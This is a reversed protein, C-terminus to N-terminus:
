LNYCPVRSSAFCFLLTGSSNSYWEGTFGWASATSGEQWLPEGYPAYGRAYAVVGGGDAWQRASGLADPLVYAWASEQVEAIRGLGYLDRAGDGTTLMQALPLALDWAFTTVTGTMQQAVRLGDGNYTYVLTATLSQAGVLRGATNYTYTFTGDNTLNGRADWTYAVDGVSTLRNAADYTYTTVTTSGLTVTYTTRNGVGDYAYEFQEGTSYFAGTLRSLPDCPHTVVSTAQDGFDWQYGTVRGTTTNTFTV